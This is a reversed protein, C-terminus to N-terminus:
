TQLSKKQLQQTVLRSKGSDQTKYEGYIRTRCEESHSRNTKHHGRILDTCRPCGESYGYKTLDAQTIRVRKALTEQIQPDSVQAKDIKDDM